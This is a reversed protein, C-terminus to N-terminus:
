LAAFKKTTCNSPDDGMFEKAIATTNTAKGTVIMRGLRRKDTANLKSPRGGTSKETNPRESVRVRAVTSRGLGLETAIQRASRGMDLLSLIDARKQESLRRMTSFSSFLSVVIPIYPLSFIVGLKHTKSPNSM